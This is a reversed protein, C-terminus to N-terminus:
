NLLGETAVCSGCFWECVLSEDPDLLRSKGQVVEARRIQCFSLWVRMLTLTCELGEQREPSYTYSHPSQMVQIKIYKYAVCLQPVM